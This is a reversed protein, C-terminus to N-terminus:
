WSFKRWRQWVSDEDLRSLKAANRMEVKMQYKILECMDKMWIFVQELQNDQAMLAAKLRDVQLNLFRLSHFKKKM